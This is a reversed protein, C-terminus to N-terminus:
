FKYSVGTYLGFFFPKFNGSDNSFTNIQYKFMPEVNAQFSKLFSYRFGVGVNTSFHVSNLNDAEGITLDLGPSVLSVENRNLFLTSVGGILEMGFKKDVLQYTMEVPLEVYGIKQNVEGSYQNRARSMTTVANNEPKNEVQLFSGAMNPRLNEIMRANEAQYFVVDTTNYELALANVGSKIAFKKNINYKAGVGYSLSPAYSKRNSEFRSDLPSGKSVSSFYIPAVNSTIQWRNIKQERSTVKNEKENLLEELVNPEAAAVVASDKKLEIDNAAVGTNQPTQVELKGDTKQSDQRIPQHNLGDAPLDSQSQNNNGNAAIGQNKVPKNGAAYSGDSNERGDKGPMAAIASNAHQGVANPKKPASLKRRDAGPQITIEKESIKEQPNGSGSQSVAVARESVKPALNNPAVNIGPENGSANPVVSDAPTASPNRETNVGPDTGQNGNSTGNTNENSETNVVANETTTKSATFRSFILLGLMLLAAVGAVKWWIPIIRRRKKEKLEAEINQWVKEDPTVEFDRFREQFLRDINKKESM